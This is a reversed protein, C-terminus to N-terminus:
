WSSLFENNKVQM